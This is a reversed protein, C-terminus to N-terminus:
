RGKIKPSKKPYFGNKPWFGSKPWIYFRGNRRLEPGSRTRQGENKKIARVTGRLKTSILGFNLTPVGRVHSHGFIALFLPSSWFIAGLKSVSNKQPPELPFTTARPITTM